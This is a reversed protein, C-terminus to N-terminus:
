SLLERHNPVREQDCIGLPWGEDRV